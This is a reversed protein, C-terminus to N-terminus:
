DNEEKSKLYKNHANLCYQSSYIRNEKPVYLDEFKYETLYEKFSKEQKNEDFIIKVNTNDANEKLGEVKECNCVNMLFEEENMYGSTVDQLTFTKVLDEFKPGYHEDDPSEKDVTIQILDKEIFYNDPHMRALNRFRMKNSKNLNQITLTVNNSTTEVKSVIINKNLLSKFTNILQPKVYKNLQDKELAEFLMINDAAKYNKIRRGEMDYNSIILSLVYEDLGDKILEDFSLKGM